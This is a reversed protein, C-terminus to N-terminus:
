RRLIPTRTIIPVRTIVLPQNLDAKRIPKRWSDLLERLALLETKGFNLKNYMLKILEKKVIIAAISDNDDNQLIKLVDLIELSQKTNKPYPFNKSCLESYITGFTDRYIQFEGDFIKIGIETNGQNRGLGICCSVFEETKEDIEVQGFNTNYCKVGWNVWGIENGDLQEKSLM